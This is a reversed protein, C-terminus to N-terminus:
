EAATDAAAQKEVAQDATSAASLLQADTQGALGRLKAVLAAGEGFADVALPLLQMIEELTFM